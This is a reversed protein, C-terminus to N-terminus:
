FGPDPIEIEQTTLRSGAFKRTVYKEMSAYLPQAFMQHAGILHIVIALNAIDVLWYPNFFGFGTLLHGPASDGFAAYAMCGCLMYFLTIVTVSVLMAKKTTKAEPPPSRIADQIGILNTSYSYASAIDGLAQFYRWIKQTQTVTSISIGTLSGVFKGNEIVKAIGFALGITSYTFSMANAVIPLWRLKDFNPIQFLIIEIVEFIIMYLNSSTHCHGKNGKKHLCISKIIATM